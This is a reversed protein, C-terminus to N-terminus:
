LNKLEKSLVNKIDELLGPIKQLEFHTRPEEKEYSLGKRKHELSLVIERKENLIARKSTKYTISAYYNLDAEKYKEFFHSEEDVLISARENPLLVLFQSTRLNPLPPFNIEKGNSNFIPKQWKIYIDYANSKGVNEIVLQILSYRSELDFRLELIPLLGNEQNWTITLATWSAIIATIVALCSAATNLDNHNLSKILILISFVLGTGLLVIIIIRKLKM